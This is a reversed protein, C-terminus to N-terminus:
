NIEAKKVEKSDESVKIIDDSPIDKKTKEEETESHEENNEEIADTAWSCFLLSM